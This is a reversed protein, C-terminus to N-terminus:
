KSISFKRKKNVQNKEEIMLEPRNKLLREHERLAFSDTMGSIHDALSRHFDEKPDIGKGSMESHDKEYANFLDILIQKQVERVNDIRPHEYIFTRSFNKLERHMKYHEDTFRVLNEHYNRADEHTKINSDFIRERSNNSVDGIAKSLMMRITAKVTGEAYRSADRDKGDMMSDTPLMHYVNPKLTNLKEWAYMFGPAEKMKDMTLLRMVFADELDSHVYSIADSLDVVQSELFSQKEQGPLHRSAVHGIKIADEISCHKLIGERSAFMLNLGEHEPYYSNELKDVIRLAQVNHEFGGHNKMLDNLTDQGLHGFPAHGLDHVIALTGSLDENLGLLRSIARANQDVEMSHDYRTRFKDGEANSPFVQTKQRLLRMHSCHLVRTYDRQFPDRDFTETVEYQRGPTNHETVAYSALKM